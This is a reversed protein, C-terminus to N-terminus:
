YVISVLSRCHYGFSSSYLLPPNMWAEVGADITRIDHKPLRGVIREGPTAELLHTGHPLSSRTGTRIM